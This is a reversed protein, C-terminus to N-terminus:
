AEDSPPGSVLQLFAAESSAALMLSKAITRFRERLTDVTVDPTFIWGRPIGMSEFIEYFGSGGIGMGAVIHNTAYTLMDAVLTRVQGSTVGGSSNDQADTIILTFTRVRVKHSEEEQAKTVVTALTLLSQQHLPTQGVLQGVEYGQASLDPVCALPTYAMLVGRNLVRTLVQVDATSSESRLAALLQQYGTCIEGLNPTISTSDDVLVSVLLLESASSPRGLGEAIEVATEPSGLARSSEQSLGGSGYLRELNGAVRELGQGV